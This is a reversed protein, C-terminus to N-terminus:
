SRPEPTLSEILDIAHAIRPDDRLAERDSVCFLRAAGAGGPLPGVLADAPIGAVPYGGEPDARHRHEVDSRSRVYATVLDVDRARFPEADLRPWVV